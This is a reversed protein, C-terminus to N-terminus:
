DGNNLLLQNANNPQFTTSDFTTTTNLLNNNQRTKINMMEIQEGTSLKRKRLNNRIKLIKFKDTLKNDHNINIKTNELFNNVIRSNKHGRM